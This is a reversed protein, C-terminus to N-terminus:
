DEAEEFFWFMKEIFFLVWRRVFSPTSFALLLKELVAEEL